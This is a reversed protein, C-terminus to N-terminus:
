GTAARLVSVLQEVTPSGALGDPTRYVRCSLGVPSERDLFPDRGDILLTPSGRFQVAEAEEPSEIQRYKVDVADSGVRALAEHLRDEAVRWYPCGEFYLLTVSV